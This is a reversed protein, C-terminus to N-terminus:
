TFHTYVSREMMLEMQFKKKLEEFQKKEKDLVEKQRELELRRREAELSRREEELGSSWNKKTFIFKDKARWSAKSYITSM